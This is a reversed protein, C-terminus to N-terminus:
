GGSVTPSFRQVLERVAIHRDLQVLETSVELAEQRGLDFEVRRAFGKLFGLPEASRPQGSQAAVGRVQGARDLLM